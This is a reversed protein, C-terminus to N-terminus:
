KPFNSMLANVTEIAPKAERLDGTGRGVINFWSVDGSNLDVLSAHGVQIGGQVGHVGMLAAFIMVAARGATAYSDKMYVFLAYDADHEKGLRAVDPGLSWDFGTKKTPLQFPTPYQFTRISNGIIRHLKIIQTDQHSAEASTPTKYNLLVVDRTKLFGTLATRVHQEGAATWEAQPEFIGAATLHGLTVDIPMLLVRPPGDARSIQTIKQQTTTVCGQLLFAGVILWVGFKSKTRLGM